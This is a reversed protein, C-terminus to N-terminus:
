AALMPEGHVMRIRIGANELFKTPLIGGAFVFVDDNPLLREVGRVSIYVGDLEIRTPAAELLLDLSGSECAKRLAQINKAKARWVSKGRYCLTVNTGPEKSLAVAAEVASDGGGVVLCRRGRYQESDRLLYVVKPLDEGPIRLKRPTGRRGIALLIKRARFIGKTTEVVFLGDERRIGTARCSFLPEIGTARAAKQLIGLLEEKSMQRKRIAGYGPLNVDTSLVLKRRPFHLITGGLDDAQELIKASIGKGKAAMAATLGAPGAGIILLDISDGPHAARLERNLDEAIADIALTGQRVANRILGMGGLEGAVYLGPVTTQYQPDLEPIEVGRKETGLVLEIASAPCVQACAGHGVCSAADILAAQGDILGLVKQEPCARVCSGCGICLGLDIVPHLSPPQDRGAARSASLVEVAAKTEEQGRSFARVAVWALILGVLVHDWGM